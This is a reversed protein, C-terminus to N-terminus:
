LPLNKLWEVAKIENTFAKYPYERKDFQKLFNIAFRFMNNKVLVATGRFLPMNGPTNLYRKGEETVSINVRVDSFTVYPKGRSLKECAGILGRMEPFGLETGDRYKLYVIPDEFRLSVFSLDTAIM